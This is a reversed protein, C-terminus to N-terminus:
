KIFTMMLLKLMQFSMFGINGKTTPPETPWHQEVALRNNRRLNM